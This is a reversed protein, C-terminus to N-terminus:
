NSYSLKVGIHRFTNNVQYIGRSLNIDSKQKNKQNMTMWDIKKTYKTNEMSKSKDNEIARSYREPDSLSLYHKSGFALKFRMILDHDQYGMPLFSQDYGGLYM